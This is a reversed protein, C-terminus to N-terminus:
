EGLLNPELGPFVEKECKQRCWCTQVSGPFKRMAVNDGRITDLGEQRRRLCERRWLYLLNSVAKM